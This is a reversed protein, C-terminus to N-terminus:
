NNRKGYVNLNIDRGYNHEQGDWFSCRYNGNDTYQLNLIKLLNSATGEYENRENRLFNGTKLWHLSYRNQELNCGITLSDFRRGVCLSLYFVFVHVIFKQNLIMLYLHIICCDGIFLLFFLLLLFFVMYIVLLCFLCFLCCNAFINCVLNLLM